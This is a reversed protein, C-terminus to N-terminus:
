RSLVPWLDPKPMWHPMADLQQQVAQYAAHQYALAKAPDVHAYYGAMWNSAAPIGAAALRRVAAVQRADPNSLPNWPSDDLRIKRLWWGEPVPTSGYIVAQPYIGPGQTRGMYYGGFVGGALVLAAAVGGALKHNLKM